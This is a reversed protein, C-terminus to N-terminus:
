FTRTAAWARLDALGDPWHIRPTYALADRARTPEFRRTTVASRFGFHALPVPLRLATAASDLAWSAPGALAAPVTMFRPKVGAASVIGALFERWTVRFGDLILMARGAAPGAPPHTAALTIADVLNDIHTTAELNTGPGSAPIGLGRSLRLMIPLITTDGRGWVVAPRLSLVDFQGRAHLALAAQEAQAKTRSYPDIYRPPYPADDGAGDLDSGGFLVAQSAINIFRQAGADRAARALADTAHIHLRELLRVTAPGPRGAAHIVTDIGRVAAPISAPDLLDGPRVEAGLRALDAAKAPNRALVAVSHGAELLRRAAAGGIFGTAGTLLLRPPRPTTM